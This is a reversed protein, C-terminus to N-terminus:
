ERKSSSRSGGGLRLSVEHAARVVEDVIERMKREDIRSALGVVALAGAVKGRLDFVPAGAARVGDLYEEDDLAFGQERVQALADLYQGMDTITRDTFRPLGRRALLARRERPELYALFVKGFCGATLPIRRGVPSTIKLDGPAEEKDLIMVRDGDLVGLFVTEGTREVVQRLFPRAISRLDLRALVAAGLELLGYGLRYRRTEEDREVLGHHQLTVLIDRVTGKSLGMERALESISFYRSEQRMLALIRAARDVAPVLRHQAEAVVAPVAM